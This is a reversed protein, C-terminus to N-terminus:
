DEIIKLLKIPDTSKRWHDLIWKSSETSSSKLVSLNANLETAKKLKKLTHLKFIMSKSENAKTTAIKEYQTMPDNGLGTQILAMLYDVGFEDPDYPKGSGLNEPYLYSLALATEANKYEGAKYLDLALLMSAKGYIARGSFSGEAPLVQIGELLDLSAQYQENNILAQAYDLGIVYHDPFKNIAANSQTLQETHLNSENYYKIIAHHYRWDEAGLELAKKLDKLPDTGKEKQLLAARTVYFSPVDPRQDCSEFYSVAEEMQNKAWYNLGLYYDLKWSDSEENAWKLMELTETRYPFAFEPSASISKNLYPQYPMENQYMNYSIWLDVLPHKTSSLLVTIADQYLNLNSYISAIEIHTQFPFENTINDQFEIVDRASKSMLHKELRAFHNLPDIKLLRDITQDHGKNKEMFRYAIALTQLASVNKSNFELAYQANKISAELEQHKLELQAIEAYAASRYEMSRGAIGLADLANYKDGLAKYSLGAFYNAEFDYTDFQLAINAFYISSDYKGDRHHIEAMLKVARIHDPELELCQKLNFKAEIYKRRKSLESAQYYLLQAERLKVGSANVMPRKLKRDLQDEDSYIEEDGLLIKLKGASKIELTFLELPSLSLAEETIPENNVFVSLDDNISSLASIKLIRGENSGEIHLVLDGRVASIGGTEKVPFWVQEWEDTLHPAFAIETIPNDFEDSFYQNLLRGAQFEIYQGNTDTLLDEWIGGDRALSWLWLKQGPMQEHRAMHGFGINEETWYGGFYNDYKGVIHYSKNTGFDNQKYKWLERNQDDSPWDRPDGNHHLATEGPIYFELDDTAKAAATIWNYYPHALPTPNYWTSNTKFYAENPSLSVKVRWQTRSPLDIMGVTCTVTGDPETTTVYDVPTATAPTHGILGFNFEIGGSTWPGRMAINRFKMVENHYIFDKGTSKEIAGWVKGGVQPLVFVKIYENELTIVKWEKPIARHSYGEFKHYPYIGPSNILTTIPNPDSFPYTPIERLEETVTAEQAGSFSAFFLIVFLTTFLRM